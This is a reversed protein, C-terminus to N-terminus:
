DEKRDSLNVVKSENKGAESFIGAAVTGAKQLRESSLHAYRQVMAASKHTMLKQLTYLDVEGSSALISAYAHRLGHLGRFGAPLGAKLKLRNVAKTCDTRQKGGRGPFVFPSKEGKKSRYIPHNKLVERASTNMPIVESKGGKPTRLTIFGQEFDCDSWELRLLESKRMGTFLCLKMINAAQVDVVEENLVKLLLKLEDQSLSETRINDVTPMKIKFSLGKCLQRDVAFNVIRRLLELTNRVTAPAYKKLLKVRLRDVDLPIIEKPEKSGFSEKLHRDFRNQDQALGKLGPTQSKYEKFLRSLTWKNTEAKKAQQEAERKQKNTLAEPKMKGARIKSARAASMDDKKARGAKEQVRKGDPRYYDIYYIREPKATGTAKGVIFFVGPYITKNRKQAPM